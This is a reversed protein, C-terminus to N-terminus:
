EYGKGGPSGQMGEDCDEEGAPLAAHRPAGKVDIYDRSVGRHAVAVELRTPEGIIAYDSREHTKLYSLTGLNSCEEDAVFLLKLKGKM